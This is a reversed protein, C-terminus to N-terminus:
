MFSLRQLAKGESCFLSSSFTSVPMCLYCHFKDKKALAGSLHYLNGQSGKVTSRTEDNQLFNFMSAYSGAM